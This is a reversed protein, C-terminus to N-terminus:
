QSYLNKIRERYLGWINDIEEDHVGYKNRVYDIFKNINLYLDTLCIPDMWPLMVLERCDGDYNNVLTMVDSKEILDDVIFNIYKEKKDM